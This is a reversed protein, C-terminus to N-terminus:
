SKEWAGFSLRILRSYARMLLFDFTFESTRHNWKVKFSRLLM